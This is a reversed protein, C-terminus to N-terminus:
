ARSILAATAGLRPYQAYVLESPIPLDEDCARGIGGIGFRLGAGRVCSSVREIAECDLLEFRNGMGLSLALDNIGVHIERVEPVRVIQDIDKVAATTELLLVVDARGEVLAMFEAVQEASEFMPLMLVEVELDLLRDLELPTNPSLPNVRAFLQAHEIAARLEPLSAARHSSIWTGLGAQRELKGDRELDIGIRDIGAADAREALGPDDTWLTLLFNDRDSRLTADTAGDPPDAVGAAGLAKILRM